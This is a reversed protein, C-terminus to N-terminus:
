QELKELLWERAVIDPTNKIEEILKLRKPNNSQWGYKVLKDLKKLFYYHGNKMTRNLNSRRIKQELAKMRFDLLENQTEYYIKILLIDAAISFLPNEFHRFVLNEQAEGYAKRYLALESVSISYIEAPFRTACIREPPHEDLFKKVWDAKGLRLGISVLNRFQFVQIMGDFYFHGQELHERYIDFARQLTQKDGALRYRQIWFVRYYAKFNRFRELSIQAQNQELLTDLEELLGPEAPKDLLRLILHYIQNTPVDLPAGPQTLALITEQLVDQYAPELQAVMNQYRLACAYELKLISYFLDLNHQSTNLNTDDEFTNYLGRFAVEEEEILFQHYYHQADRLSSAEQAKRAAQMNQWFRDELGYKRYFRAMALFQYIDEQEAEMEAQVMFKRVLRFLESSINDLPSKSKEPYPRGPFFIQFVAEKALAPHNEEADHELIYDCLRIVEGALSGANFYPSSLFVRLRRNQTKDLRKLVELLKRNLM